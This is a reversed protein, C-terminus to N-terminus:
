HQFAFHLYPVHVLTVLEGSFPFGFAPNCLLVPTLSYEVQRQVLLLQLFLSVSSHPRDSQITMAGSAHRSHYGVFLLGTSHRWEPRPPHVLCIRQLARSHESICRRFNTQCGSHGSHEIHVFLRGQIPYGAMRDPHAPFQSYRDGKLLFPPPPTWPPLHELHCTPLPEFLRWSSVTYLGSRSRGGPQRMSEAMILTQKLGTSVPTHRVM